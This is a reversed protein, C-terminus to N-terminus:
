IRMPLWSLSADRDVLGREALADAIQKIEFGEPIVVRETQVRGTRLHEIIELPTM